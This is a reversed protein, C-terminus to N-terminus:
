DRTGLFITMFMAPPHIPLYYATLLDSKDLGFIQGLYVFHNSILIIYPHKFNHM